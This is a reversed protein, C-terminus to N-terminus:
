LIESIVYRSVEVVAGSKIAIDVTQERVERVTGYMGNGFIVRVGPQLETHVKTFRDKQKKMTRSYRLFAVVAMLLILVILAISAGLISEWLNTAFM